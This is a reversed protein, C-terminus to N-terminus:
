LWLRPRYFCILDSSDTEKIDLIDLLNRKGSNAGWEDQEDDDQQDEGFGWQSPDEDMDPNMGGESSDDDDDEMRTLKRRSSMEKKTKERTAPPPSIAVVIEPLGSQTRAGGVGEKEGEWGKEKEKRAVMTLDGKKM